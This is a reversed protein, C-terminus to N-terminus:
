DLREKYPPALLSIFQGNEWVEQQGDPYKVAPTGHLKGNMYNLIISSFGFYMSADDVILYKTGELPKGNEDRFTKGALEPNRPIM